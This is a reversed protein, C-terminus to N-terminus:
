FGIRSCRSGPKCEVEQKLMSALDIANKTQMIAAKRAVTAFDGPTLLEFKLAEAPAKCGFFQEFATSIQAGSMPSFKAKFIFRRLTAPDLHDAFNTTCAFPFPHSEMRTLMENVQSIEWSRQAQRRDGLLSDAEDFILFSRRDAAEEFAEAIRKETNGVYMDLLDSARKELVDLGLKAALYRAFASKGTGSPGSFLFSIAVPGAATVRREMEVLNLDATSLAANFGSTNPATSLRSPRGMAKLLAQAAQSASTDSGLRSARIGAEIVAPPAPLQALREAENEDLTVNQSLAHRAVIRRRARMDPERFELAHVMRRIISPGLFEPHNSIWITPIPCTEVIRNMFVKSGRRNTSEADDIGTFIDDAEDVVAVVRGIRSGMASLVALHAIRDARTPESATQGIEGVFVVHAQLLTGLLKAYETKGTGPAGHFLIGVGVEGARLAGDLLNPVSKAASGLHDFDGNTLSTTHPKGLLTSLIADQKQEISALLTLVTRSASFDGGHRDEILGLQRLIGGAEFMTARESNSLGCVRSLVTISVEDPNLCGETWVQAMNQFPESQTMRVLAALVEAERAPLRLTQAIWDLRKQLASRAPAPRYQREIEATSIRLLVSGHRKSGARVASWLAPIDISLLREHAEIWQLTEYNIPVKLPGKAPRLAALVYRRMVHKEFSGFPLHSLISEPASAFAPTM